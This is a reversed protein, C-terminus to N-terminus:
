RRFATVIQFLNYYIRTNRKQKKQVNLSRVYRNRIWSRFKWKLGMNKNERIIGQKMQLLFINEYNKPLCQVHCRKHDYWYKYVWAISLSHFSPPFTIRTYGCETKHCLICSFIKTAIYQSLENNLTFNIKLYGKKQSHIQFILLSM